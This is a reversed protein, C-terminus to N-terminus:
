GKELHIVGPLSTTNPIKSIRGQDVLFIHLAMSNEM